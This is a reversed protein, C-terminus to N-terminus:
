LAASAKCWNKWLSHVALSKALHAVHAGAAAQVLGRLMADSVPHAGIGRAFDRDRRAQDSLFARLKKLVAGGDIGKTAGAHAVAQRVLNKAEWIIAHMVYRGLGGDGVQAKRWLAPALALALAAQSAEGAGGFLEAPAAAVRRKKAPPAHELSTGKLGFAAALGQHPEVKERAFMAAQEGHDHHQRDAELALQKFGAPLKQSGNHEQIVELLAVAVPDKAAKEAQTSEGGLGLGTQRLYSSRSEAEKGRRLMKNKRMEADARIAVELPKRLDWGSMEAQVLYPTAKALNGRLDQPMRSLLSADPIMRAALVREVRLRGDENLLGTDQDIFEGRNFQDIVGAKELAKVFPESASSHLFENMSQEPEMTHTLSDLLERNVYHKGLAVEQSRPDLGQTLSENMRRGLAGLEKEDKGVKIKRV